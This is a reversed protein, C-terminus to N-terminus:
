TCRPPAGAFALACRGARLVLRQGTYGDAVGIAVALVPYAPFTLANPLRLHRLDALALRVALSTV